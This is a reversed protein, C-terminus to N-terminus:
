HLVRNNGLMSEKDFELIIMLKHDMVAMGEAASSDSSDGSFLEGALSVVEERFFAAVEDSFFANLVNACCILMLSSLWLKREHFCCTLRIM